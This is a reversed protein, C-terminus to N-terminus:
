DKGFPRAHKAVRLHGRRQEVPQRMVAVDEFGAILTPPELAAGLRRRDRALARAAISSREACAGRMAAPRGCHSRRLPPDIQSAPRPRSQIGISVIRAIRPNILRWDLKGRYRMSDKASGCVYTCAIVYRVRSGCATCPRGLYKAAGTAKAEKHTM